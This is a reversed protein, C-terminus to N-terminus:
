TAHNTERITQVDTTMNLKQIWRILTRRSVNLLKAAQTTNGHAALHAHLIKQKAKGPNEKLETLKTARYGGRKSLKREINKAYFRQEFPDNNNEYGAMTQPMLEAGFVDANRLCYSSIESTQVFWDGNVHDSAFWERVLGAATEDGSMLGVLKLRRPNGAQLAKMRGIARKRDRDGKAHVIAVCETDNTIEAIFCIM